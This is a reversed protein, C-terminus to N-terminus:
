QCASQPSWIRVTKDYSGTVLVPKDQHIDLTRIMKSHGKLKSLTRQSGVDWGVITNDYSLAYCHSQNQDFVARPNFYKGADAGYFNRVQKNSNSAFMIVRDKDTGVLLYKGDYSCRLDLASFSVHDDEFSNMNYRDGKKMAKTDISHIYNDEQLSVYLIHSNSGNGWEICAVGRRFMFREAIGFTKNRPQYIRVEKDYSCTAFATGAENWRVRNVYKGHKDFFQVIKPSVETKGLNKADQIGTDVLFHSGDMCGVALLNSEKSFDMTLVPPKILGDIVTSKSTTIDRMEIRSGFDASAVINECGSRTCFRVDIVNKKHEAPTSIGQSVLKLKGGKPNVLHDEIERDLKKEKNEGKPNLYEQYVGLASLLYGAKKGGSRGPFRVKLM